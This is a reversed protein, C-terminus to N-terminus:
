LMWRSEPLITRGPQPGKESVPWGVAQPVARSTPVNQWRRGASRSTALSCCRRKVSATQSRGSPWRSAMLAGPMCVTFINRSIDFPLMSKRHLAWLLQACDM